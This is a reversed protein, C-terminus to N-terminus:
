KRDYPKRAVFWTHSSLNNEKLFKQFGAGLENWRDILITKLFLRDSVSFKGALVKNRVIEADLEGPTFCELAEFGARKFLIKLSDPNFLNIHEHDISESMIGLTSIDFGKFNPCTVAIISGPNMLGRCTKLFEEASFLHEIVEFSVIIDPPTNLFKINEIFDNITEIGRKRCSQALAPMPEIAIIKSFRGTAKAEKCFTGFGAGVEVLCDTPVDFKDCIELIRRVRPKVINERRMKESAPFIFKNWCEYVLSHEYFDRLIKPTARPNMYATGCKRCVDFNFGYKEFASGADDKGCAPCSVKIFKSKSAALVAIDSALAEQFDKSEPKINQENFRNNKM